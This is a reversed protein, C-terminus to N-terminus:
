EDRPPEFDRAAWPIRFPAIWDFQPVPTARGLAGGTLLVHYKSLCRFVAQVADDVERLTLPLEGVPTRHAVLRQAYDLVPRTERELTERDQAIAAPPVHDESAGPGPAGGLREFQRDIDVVPFWGLEAFFAHYRARTLVCAHDEMEHLLHFLNLVGAQGDLERRIAMAADRGYLGVIWQWLHDGSQRLEANTEFMHAVARFLKRQWFLNTTETRIRQIKEVWDRYRRDADLEQAPRSM